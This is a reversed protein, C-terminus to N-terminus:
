NLTDQVEGPPVSSFWQFQTLIAPTRVPIQFWAKQIRHMLALCETAVPENHTVLM